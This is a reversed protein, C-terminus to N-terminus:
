GDQMEKKPISKAIFWKDGLYLVKEIWARRLHNISKRECYETRPYLRVAQRALALTTM